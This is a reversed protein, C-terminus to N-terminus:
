KQWNLMAENWHIWSNHLPPMSIDQLLYLRFLIKITVLSAMNPKELRTPHSICPIKRFYMFSYIYAYPYTRAIHNLQNTSWNIMAIRGNLMGPFNIIITKSLALVNKKMMHCEYKVGRIWKQRINNYSLFDSRTRSMCTQNLYHGSNFFGYWQLEVVSWIINKNSWLLFM